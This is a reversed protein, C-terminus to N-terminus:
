SVPRTSSSASIFRRRLGVSFKEIHSLTVYSNTLFSGFMSSSNFQEQRAASMFSPLISDTLPQCSVVCCNWLTFAFSNASQEPSLTSAGIVPASNRM